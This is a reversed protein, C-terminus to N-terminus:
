KVKGPAVISLVSTDAYGSYDPMDKDRFREQTERIWEGEKKIADTLKAPALYLEYKYSGWIKQLTEKPLNIEAATIEIVEDNHKAVYIEAECLAQIFNEAVSTHKALWDKRVAANMYGTYADRDAFVICKDGLQQAINHIFPEWVSGADIEGNLISAQIAVPQLNIITIGKADVGNAKLFRDAFVQSTTGQLIGIKKGALDVAKSIGRDKRAVIAGDYSECITALISVNKDGAFGLFAVNIEVVNAVDAAGGVLADMAQKAAQVYQIEVNLGHKEFIGTKKAVIPLVCWANKSSAYVLKTAKVAPKAVPQQDVSPPSTKKEPIPEKQKGCGFNLICVAAVVISLVAKGCTRSRRMSTLGYTIM